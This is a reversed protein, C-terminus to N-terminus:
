RRGFRSFDPAVDNRPAYRRLLGHANRSRKAASAIVSASPVKERGPGRRMFGWLSAGGDDPGSVRDHSIGLSGFRRKHARTATPVVPGQPYALVSSNSATADTSQIVAFPSSPTQNDNSATPTILTVTNGNVTTTIAGPDTINGSAPDVHYTGAATSVPVPQGTQLNTTDVTGATVVQNGTGLDVITSTTSGPVVLVGNGNAQGSSNMQLNVVAGTSPSKFAVSDLEGLPITYGAGTVCNGTSPDYTGDATVQVPVQGPIGPSTWTITAPVANSASTSDAASPLQQGLANLADSIGFFNFNVLDKVGLAVAGIPVAYEAAAPFRAAVLFSGDSVLGSIATTYDSNTQANALAKIDSVLSVGLSLGTLPNIITSGTLPDNTLVATTAAIAGAIAANKDDLTSNKNSFTSALNEVSSVLVAYDSLAM